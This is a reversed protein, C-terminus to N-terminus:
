KENLNKKVMTGKIGVEKLYRVLCSITSLSYLTGNHNIGNEFFILSIDKLPKNKNDLLLNYATPHKEMFKVFRTYHVSKKYDPNLINCM